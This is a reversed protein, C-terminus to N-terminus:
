KVLFKSVYSKSGVVKVIYAGPIFNESIEMRLQDVKRQTLLRGQIDYVSIMSGLDSDDFGTVTLTGNAYFSSISKNTNENNSEEDGIGSSALVFRLNFRDHSDTPTVQTKYSEGGSLLKSNNTFKDDIWIETTRGYNNWRRVKIEVEQALLSPSLYLPTTVTEAGEPAPLFMSELDSGDADKTYIMSSATQVITGQRTVLEMPASKTNETDSELTSSLKQVNTYAPNTMIEEPTRLVIAARDYAGTQSDKVEFLYDDVETMDSDASRLFQSGRNIRRESAPITIQTAHVGNNGSNPAYIVFMQLPAIVFQNGAADDYDGFTGGVGKMLLYSYSANIRNKRTLESGTVVNYLGSARSAPNLVWVRSMIDRNGSQSTNGAVVGWPSTASNEKILEELSLPTLFPNALYNFGKELPMVVDDTIIKENNYVDHTIDVGTIQSNGHNTFSALPFINNTNSFALRDFTLIDTNRAGFSTAYNDSGKLITQYYESISGNNTGDYNKLENGRLDIGLVFAKGAKIPIQPNSEAYNLEGIINNDYPFMLFNWMFYDARIEQYPSGMGVLGRNREILPNEPATTIENDLAVKVQVAGYDDLSTGTRGYIVNGGQEVNLHAILSSNTEDHVSTPDIETARLQRSELILKGRTLLLNQVSMAIEPSVTVHKNNYIEVNPFNIFNNGKRKPDYAPLTTTIKQGAPGAFVFKAFNDSNFSTTYDAMFGIRNEGDLYDANQVFDGTIVTKSKKVHIESKSTADASVIFDGKVYLVTNTTDTSVISMKGKNFFVPKSQGVSLLPVTTLGLLVLLKVKM